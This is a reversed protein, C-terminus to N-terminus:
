IWHHRNFVNPAHEYVRPTYIIPTYPIIEGLLRLLIVYKITM